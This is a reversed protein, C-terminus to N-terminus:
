APEAGTATSRIPPGIAPINPVIRGVKGYNLDPLDDFEVYDAAPLNATPRQVASLDFLLETIVDRNPLSDIEHTYNCCNYQGFFFSPSHSNVKNICM